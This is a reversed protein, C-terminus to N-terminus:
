SLADAVVNAKGPHYRIECDYDSLLELWRRQIMNLEKKDLIHQLSKHDPFMVCKTDYLYHRWMKLAFVVMKHELDHTTYNKKHIKLQRSSYAIVKERQILVAGLGKRSAGYYVVFNESGEPLALIPASCVKAKVILIGSKQTKTCSIISLKSKEGIAGRDGQVILVEDGYPIQVIKEDCIIVAHHNALWDMGIIVDFSGLEVPMLDVNFPHGLLGLTCGRLVTNTEFVREDALEVAYSINLTDPIIDLLTSFTSSVFSRDAGSNFLVFAYHNNLLFTGKVINLDLNVEGEGLVYAKGGEEEVGNKNGAKNGYNQDKLKLCDSRYNGQRGCEFCTVVELESSSWKNCLPLPGNYPRRENNGATYARAMTHGGVNPRKFLPQQRRNDRQNVELRRKNETNKVAYGEVKSGDFQQGISNCGRLEVEEEPVMRTCLMTLEQFRQTYAALDNNKVTLNWLKSEIKQVENRLCYVEAILKMLERWSMTFAVDTGITRKHSNEKMKMQIRMEVMEMEVMENGGNGNDGNGNGGNRNDGDSSNQSQNEAEFANAAHTVEYTALAEKVRRNILEEIAKPTMGSRTITMNQELREVTDPILMGDPINIGADMDVRVKMTSRDNSEVEDEVDIRVDVEMSTCADIGAEVDRDVAVEVVIADAEIDVLALPFESSPSVIVSPAPLIPATPIELTSTTPSAHRERLKTDSELVEVIDLLTNRPLDRRNQSLFSGPKSPSALSEKSESKKSKKVNAKHKNQNASKSVNASQNKKRFKMGNAYQLVCEDHNATILCQKCIACIVKSKENRIAHKINNCESSTHDLYDSSQLSRYNEEIKELKNSLCSSKSKSPVKDNTYNNRFQPRRTRTTSEVNKISFGNTISNVDKKTIVHPQSITIPKTRVSAKVHKNPVFKDVRSAKFHNIRFIGLSIVRENNVVTSEHSSHALNLTVSKSLANSEGVKPFVKSKPLPTVSYLKSRSSSPPKLVRSEKVNTLHQEVTRGGQEVSSVESIVNSDNQSVQHPEPIPELLETYETSGDADYVPAKDSQTGSTSAQQKKRKLLRIPNGNIGNGNGEAPAPVVNGNVYQNEIELVVSLGNMNEVINDEVMLMQRDQDMNMDPQPIQMNSPNSSSRQNNNTLTTNNLTFAKAM